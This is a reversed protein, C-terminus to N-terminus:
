ARRRIKWGRERACRECMEIEVYPDCDWYRYAVVVEPPNPCHYCWCLTQKARRVWAPPWPESM